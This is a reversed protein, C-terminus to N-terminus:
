GFVAWYEFLERKLKYLVIISLFHFQDLKDLVVKNYKWTPITEEHDVEDFIDSKM